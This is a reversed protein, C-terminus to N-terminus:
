SVAGSFLALMTNLNFAAHLVISTIIRGSKQYVAALVLGLLFLPLSAQLNWHLTAFLAASVVSAPGTGTRNALFRFLGARFILEEGVPALIAVVFLWQAVMFWGKTGRIIAVVDQLEHPLKLVELLYNWGLVVLTCVPLFYVLGLLGLRVCRLLSERSEGPRGCPLQRFLLAAATLAVGIGYGSALLMSETAPSVIAIGSLWLIGQPIFLMLVLTIFPLLLFDGWSAPWPPLRPPSEIWRQAHGLILARIWLITGVILLTAQASAYFAKAAPM